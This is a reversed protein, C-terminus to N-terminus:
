LLLGNDAPLSLTCVGEPGGSETRTAASTLGSLIRSSHANAKVRPLTLWSVSAAVSSEIEGRRRTGLNEAARKEVGVNRNLRESDM